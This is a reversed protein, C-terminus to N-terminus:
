CLMFYLNLVVKNCPWLRLPGAIFFSELAKKHHPTETSIDVVMTPWRCFNKLFCDGLFSFNPGFYLHNLIEFWKSENLNKIEPMCHKQIQGSMGTSLM